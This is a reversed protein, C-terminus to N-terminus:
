TEEDERKGDEGETEDDAVADEKKAANEKAKMLFNRDFKKIVIHGDSLMAVEPGNEASMMQQIIGTGDLSNVEKDESIAIYDSIRVQLPDLHNAMVFATTDGMSGANAIGLLSGLVFISGGASVEAGQKVDGMVLLSYDTEDSTGSRLTGVHIEAYRTDAMVEGVPKTTGREAGALLEEFRKELSDDETSLAVVQLKTVDQIVGLIQRVEEDSVKRNELSLVIKANGFFDAADEFKERIKPLLESFSLENDMKLIIGSRVGKLTVAQNM